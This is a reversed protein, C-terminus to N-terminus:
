RGSEVTAAPVLRPCATAPEDLRVKGRARTKDRAEVRLKILRAPDQGEQEANIVKRGYAYMAAANFRGLQVHILVSQWKNRSRKNLSAKCM